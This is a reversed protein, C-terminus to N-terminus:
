KAFSIWLKVESKKKNFHFVTVKVYSYVRIKISKKERGKKNAM